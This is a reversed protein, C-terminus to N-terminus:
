ADADPDDPGGPGLLEPDHTRHMVPKMPGGRVLTVIFWILALVALVYLPLAIWALGTFSFLIALVFLIVTVGLPTM